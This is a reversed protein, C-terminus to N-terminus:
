SIIIATATWEFEQAVVRLEMKIAPPTKRPLSILYKKGITEGSELQEVDEFISVPISENWEMIYPEDLAAFGTESFYLSLATGENQIPIRSIGINKLHITAILYKNEDKQVVEGSVNPELRFKYFRGKIFKYYAFIGGLILGFSAIIQNVLGVIQATSM